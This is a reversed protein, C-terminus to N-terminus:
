ARRSRRALGGLVAAGGLLFPATVPSFPQGGTRPLTKVPEPAPPAATEPSTPAQEAQVGLVRSGGAEAVVGGSVLRVGSVESPSGFASEGPVVAQLAKTLAPQALVTGLNTGPSLTDLGKFLHATVTSAEARTAGNPLTVPAKAAGVTIESCLPAVPGDCLVSLSQGPAVEVFGAGSRLGLGSVVREFPLGGGLLGNAVPLNGGPVSALPLGHVLGDVVPPGAIPLTGLLDSQVRVVANEVVPAAALSSRDVPVAARSRSITLRLLPATGAGRFEPLVDLTGGESLAEALYARADAGNRATATALNIHVLDSSQLRKLMAGVTQRPEMAPLVVGPAVRGIVGNLTAIVQGAQATASSPSVTSAAAPAVQQVLDGVPTALTEPSLSATATGVLQKLAESLQIRIRTVGGTSEATFTDATGTVSSRGCAPAAEVTPLIGTQAAPLNARAAAVAPALPVAACNDGGPATTDGFRAVSRTAPSLDTGTGTATASLLRGVADLSSDTVASGFVADRGLLSLQAVQAGARGAYREAVPASSASAGSAALAVSLAGATLATGTFSKITLPFSM